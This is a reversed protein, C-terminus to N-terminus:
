YICWECILATAYVYVNWIGIGLFELNDCIKDWKTM